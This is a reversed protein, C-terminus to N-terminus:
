RLGRQQIAVGKRFDAQRRGCHSPARGVKDVLNQAPRLRPSMGTSCGVWNSRTMLRVVALASPMVMGGDSSAAQMVNVVNSNTVLPDEPKCTIGV